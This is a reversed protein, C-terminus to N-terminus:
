VLPVPLVRTTGLHPAWDRQVAESMVFEAIRQFARVPNGGAWKLGRESLNPRGDRLWLPAFRTHQYATVCGPEDLVAAALPLERVNFVLKCRELHPDWEGQLRHDGRPILERAVVCWASPGRPAAGRYRIFRRVMSANLAFGPKLSAKLARLKQHLREEMPWMRLFDAVERTVFDNVRAVLRECDGDVLLEDFRTKLGPLSVPVLTTLPEGRARWEADLAEAEAPLPKLRWEPGTFWAPSKGGWVSFCARAKTGRFAKAPLEVATVLGLTRGLKERVPAYLYTDLWSAPTVFALAGPKQEAAALLFFVYDDRLSQGKQLVLGRQFREFAPPDDLVPSRGNWPPNGVWLVFGTLREFREAVVASRLADGVLVEARPVRERCVAASSELLEVGLLKAKPWREAAASLFAGAGCAPDVVTFRGSSPLLPEVANLVQEVVERPTFWIGAQKRTQPDLGEAYAQEDPHHSVQQAMQYAAGGTLM